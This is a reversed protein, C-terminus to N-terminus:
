KRGSRTGPRGRRPSRRRRRHDGTRRTTSPGCPGPWGRPVRLCRAQAQEDQERERHRESPADLLGFHACPRGRDDRPDAVTVREVKTTSGAYPEDLDVSGLEPLVLAVCAFRAALEFPERRGACPDRDFGIGTEVVPIAVATEQAVDVPVRQVDADLEYATARRCRVEAAAVLADVSVVQEVRDLVRAPRSAAHPARAPDRPLGVPGDDSM